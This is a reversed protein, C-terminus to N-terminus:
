KGKKVLGAFGSVNSYTILSEPMLDDRMLAVNILYLGVGANYIM